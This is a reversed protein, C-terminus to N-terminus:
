TSLLTRNMLNFQHVKSDCVKLGPDVRKCRLKGGRYEEIGSVAAAPDDNGEGPEPSLEAAFDGAGGAAGAGATEAGRQALSPM